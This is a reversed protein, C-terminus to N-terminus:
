LNETLYEYDALSWLWWDCTYEINWSLNYTKNTMLEQVDLSVIGDKEHFDLLRIAAIHNGVVKKELLMYPM